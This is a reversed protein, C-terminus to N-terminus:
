TSGTARPRPLAAARAADAHREGPRRIADLSPEDGLGAVLEVRERDGPKGRRGDTASARESIRAPRAGRRRRARDQLAAARRRGRRRRSRRRASPAVGGPARFDGGRQRLGVGMEPEGVPERRRERTADEERVRDVAPVARLYRTVPRGTGARMAAHECASARARKPRGASPGTSANKPASAPARLRLSKATSVHPSAPGATSCTTRRARSRARQARPHVAGVVHEDRRRIVEAGRERGRGRRRAPPRCPRPARPTPSARRDEDRIRMRRRGGSASRGASRAPRRRPRRGRARARARARRRRRAAPRDPAARTSARPSAPSPAGPPPRRSRPPASRAQVDARRPQLRARTRRCRRRRAQGGIREERAGPAGLDAAPVADLRRVQARELADLDHMAGSGTTGSPSPPRRRSRTGPADGPVDRAGVEEGLEDRERREITTAPACPLVVVVAIIAKTSASSPSSGAQSTPPSIGCSPPLAPAPSPQSTTSPSSDSRVTSRRRGSIATTM